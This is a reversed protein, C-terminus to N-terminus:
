IHPRTQVRLAPGTWATPSLTHKQQSYHLTRESTLCSGPHHPLQLHSGHPFPSFSFDRGQGRGAGALRFNGLRSARPPAGRPAPGPRKQEEVHASAQVGAILLLVAPGPPRVPAGAGQGRWTRPLAAPDPNSSAPGWGSLGRPVRTGQAEAPWKRSAEGM